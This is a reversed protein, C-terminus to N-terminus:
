NSCEPCVFLQWNNTENETCLNNKIDKLLYVNLNWYMNM